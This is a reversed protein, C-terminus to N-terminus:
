KVILALNPSIPKIAIDFKTFFTGLVIHVNYM